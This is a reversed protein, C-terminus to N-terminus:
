KASHILFKEYGYIQAKKGLEYYLTELATSASVNRVTVNNMTEVCAQSFIQVLQPPVSTNVVHSRLLAQLNEIFMKTKHTSMHGQLFEICESNFPKQQISANLYRQPTVKGKEASAEKTFTNLFETVNKVYLQADSNRFVKEIVRKEEDISRTPLVYSRVRSVITPLLSSVHTTLFIFFVNEPPEELIKLLINSSSEHLTEASELIVLKANGHSKIHAWSIINRLMQVPYLYAPMAEHLKEAHRILMTRKRESLTKKIAHSYAKKEETGGFVRAYEFCMTRCETIVDYVCEVSAKIGKAWTVTGAWLMEDARRVLKALARYFFMHTQMDHSHEIMSQACYIEPLFNRTGLMLVNEHELLRMYVCDICSCNWLGKDQCLIGRSLELACSCKGTGSQGSICVGSPVANSQILHKWHDTLQTYGIINEFM